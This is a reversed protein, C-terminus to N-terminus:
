RAWRLSSSRRSAWKRECRAAPHRCRLFCPPCLPIRLVGPGGTPLIDIRGAARSLWNLRGGDTRPKRGGSSLSYRGSLPSAPGTPPRFLGLLFLGPSARRGAGLGVNQHTLFTQIGCIKELQICRTEHGRSDFRESRFTRQSPKRRVSISARCRRPGHDVAPTRQEAM